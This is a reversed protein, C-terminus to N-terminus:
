NKKEEIEEAKRNRDDVIVRIITEERKDRDRGKM